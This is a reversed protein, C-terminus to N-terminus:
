RITLLTRQLEFETKNCKTAAIIKSVESEIRGAHAISM